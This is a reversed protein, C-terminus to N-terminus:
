KSKYGYQSGLADDREELTVTTMAINLTGTQTLGPNGTNGGYNNRSRNGGSSGWEAHTTKMSRLTDRSNLSALLSNAFLRAKVIQLAIWVFNHPEQIYFALNLCSFISTVLGTEITWKILQDVLITTKGFGGKRTLLLIGVLSLTITVDNFLNLATPALLLWNYRAIYTPINTSDISLVTNAVAGVVYVFASTWLVISIMKFLKNPALTWIRFSFFGQVVGTIISGLLVSLALTAPMKGLLSLPNGYDTVAYTYTVHSIAIVHVLEFIWVVAVLAKMGFTDEPFRGHYLYYQATFIGFLIGSGLTGVLLAGITPGPDFAPPHGPPPVPPPPTASM